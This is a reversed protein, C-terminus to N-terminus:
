KVPQVLPATVEIKYQLIVPTRCEEDEDKPVVTENKSSKPRRLM